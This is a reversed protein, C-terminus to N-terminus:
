YVVMLNSNPLPYAITFAEGKTPAVTLEVLAPLQKWSEPWNEVWEGSEASPFEESLKVKINAQKWVKERDKKPPIYFRFKISDIKDMLVECKMSPALSDGWRKPSPWVAMCLHHDKDIFLKGLAIGSFQPDLKIGNQYTLVLTNTGPLINSDEAKSTYFFLDNGDPLVAKPLVDALRTSLYLENFLKRQQVEADNNISDIQSYFYGLTSLIAIMLGLAILLELLTVHRRSQKKMKQKM